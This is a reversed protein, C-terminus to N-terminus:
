QYRGPRWRDGLGDAAIAGGAGDDGFAGKPSPSVPVVKNWLKSLKEGAVLWTMKLRFSLWFAMSVRATVAIMPRTVPPLSDKMLPPSVTKCSLLVGAGSRNKILGCPMRKPSFAVRERGPDNKALVASLIKNVPPLVKEAMLGPAAGKSVTLAGMPKCNQPSPEFPM